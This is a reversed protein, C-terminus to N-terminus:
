KKTLVKMQFNLPTRLIKLETTELINSVKFVNYCVRFLIFCLILGLTCMERVFTSRAISTTDELLNLETINMVSLPVYYPGVTLNPGPSIFERAPKYPGVLLDVLSFVPSQGNNRSNFLFILSVVTIIIIYISFKQLLQSKITSRM